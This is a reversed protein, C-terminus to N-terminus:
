FEIFRNLFNFSVEFKIGKRNVNVRFLYKLRIKLM